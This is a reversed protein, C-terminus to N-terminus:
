RQIQCCSRKKYSVPSFFIQKSTESCFCMRLVINIKDNGNLVTLHVNVKGYGYLVSDDTLKAKLPTEFASYNDLSKKEPTMHQSAGSDVRWDANNIQNSSKM